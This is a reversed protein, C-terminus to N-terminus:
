ILLTPNNGDAQGWLAPSIGPSQFTVIAPIDTRPPVTSVISQHMILTPAFRSPTPAFRNRYQPCFSWRPFTKNGHPHPIFSQCMLHQCYVHLNEIQQKCMLLDLHGFTPLKMILPWHGATTSAFM